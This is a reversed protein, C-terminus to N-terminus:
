KGHGSSEGQLCLMHAYIGASSKCYGGALDIPGNCFGCEPQGKPEPGYGAKRLLFTDRPEPGGNRGKGNDRDADIQALVGFNIRLSIPKSNVGTAKRGSGQRAGGHTSKENMVFEKLPNWHKKIGNNLKLCAKISTQLQKKSNRNLM